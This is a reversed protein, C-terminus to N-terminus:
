SFSFVADALMELLPLSAYLVAAATMIQMAGATGSQGADRCVDEAIGGAFALGLAKILPNILAPSLSARKATTRMFEIIGTWISVVSGLVFLVTLLSLLVSQEPNYKKLIIGIISATVCVAACKWLTEM